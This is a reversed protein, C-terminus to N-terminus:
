KTTLNNRNKASRTGLQDDSETIKLELYEAFTNIQEVLSAMSKVAGISTSGDLSEKLVQDSEDINKLQKHEILKAEYEIWSGLKRIEIPSSIRIWQDNPDRQGGELMDVDEDEPLSEKSSKEIVAQNPKKVPQILDSPESGHILLNYSWAYALETQEEPYLRGPTSSLIYYLNGRTDQGIPLFRLRNTSGALYQAIGALRLGNKHDSEVQAMRVEWEGLARLREEEEEQMKQLQKGKLPPDTKILSEKSPMVAVLQAKDEAWQKNIKVRDKVIDAKAIREREVGQLLDDALIKGRFAVDILGTIVAVKQEPLVRVRSLRTDSSPASDIYVNKNNKTLQTHLGEQTLFTQATSWCVSSASHYPTPIMGSLKSEKNLQVLTEYSSDSLLIEKENPEEPDIESLILKVLGSMIARMGGEDDIWFNVIDDMSDLIKEVRQTENKSNAHETRGLGPLLSRFRCVFERAHIRLQIQESSLEGTPISSFCEPALVLKPGRKVPVKPVAPQVQADSSGGQSTSPQTLDSSGSSTAVKPNFSSPGTSTKAQLASELKKSSLDGKTEKSQSSKNTKEKGLAPIAVVVGSKPKVQKKPKSDSGKAAKDEQPKGDKSKTPKPTIGSEKAEDLRQKKNNALAACKSSSRTAAAGLRLRRRCCNEGITWHSTFRETEQLSLLQLLGYVDSMDLCITFHTCAKDKRDRGWKSTSERVPALNGNDAPRGKQTPPKTNQCILIQELVFESRCQHCRATPVDNRDSSEPLSLGSSKSSLQPLSKKKSPKNLIDLKPKKALQSSADAASVHRKQSSAKKLPNLISPKKSTSPKTQTAQSEPVPQLQDETRKRTSGDISKRHSGNINSTSTSSQAVDMSKRKSSTRPIDPTHSVDQPRPESHRRIVKSM